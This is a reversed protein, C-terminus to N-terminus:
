QLGGHLRTDLARVEKDLSEPSAVAYVFKDPRLIAVARTRFGAKRFWAVMTGHIDEAEELGPSPDRAVGPGQPRGGDPFLAVYSTNLRALTRRSVTSLTTRPDCGLGILSFGSGTLEDLPVHAGLLTRVLPQLSLRGELGRWRRRRNGLYSGNSYTPPPKFRGERFWAHVPPILAILRLVFGRVKILVPNTMSVVNKVGVSVNIMAKAHDRREREYSDLIAPSAAGRLVLDLKWALNAADRLGSSAGQGMFHPTM